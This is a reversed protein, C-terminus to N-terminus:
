VFISILISKNCYLLMWLCFCGFTGGSFSVGYLEASSNTNLCLNSDPAFHPANQIVVSESARLRPVTRTAAAAMIVLTLWDSQNVASTM